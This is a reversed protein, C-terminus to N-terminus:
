LECFKPKRDKFETYYKFGANLLIGRVKHFEYALHEPIHGDSGVTIIEGGLEKYRRLVEPHPHAFGLGYKLGSTNIEIGKGKYILSKLIEDILDSYRQYSYYKAQYNGYRVIYDMHGLVDFDEITNVLQLMEEFASRYSKIDEIGQFVERTYPDTNKLFHTSGIVFDFPYKSLFEHYFNNLHPQLGIEVGIRVEIKSKYEEQLKKMYPIYEEPDFIFDTSGDVYDKDFHDTFCICKLGKMIAQEVMDEPKVDADTSFSTHLHFDKEFTKEM